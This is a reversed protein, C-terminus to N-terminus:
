IMELARHVIQTNVSRVIFMILGASLFLQFVFISSAGINEVQGTHIGYALFTNMFGHISRAFIQTYTVDSKRVNFLLIIFSTVPNHRNYYIHSAVYLTRKLSSQM